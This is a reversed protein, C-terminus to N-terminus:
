FSFNGGFDGMDFGGPDADSADAAGAGGSGDDGATMGTSTGDGDGTLGTEM